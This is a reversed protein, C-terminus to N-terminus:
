VCQFILQGAASMRGVFFKGLAFRLVEQLVQVILKIMEGLPRTHHGFRGGQALSRILRRTVGLATLESCLRRTDDDLAAAIFATDIRKQRAAVLEQAVSVVSVNARLSSASAYGAQAPLTAM